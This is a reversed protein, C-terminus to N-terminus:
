KETLSLQLIEELLKEEQLRQQELKHCEQESLMLAMHLDSDLDPSPNDESEGSDANRQYHELSAQIARCCFNAGDVKLYFVSSFCLM